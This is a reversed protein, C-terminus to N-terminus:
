DQTKQDGIDGPLCWFMRLMLYWVFNETIGGDEPVLWMKFRRYEWSPRWQGVLQYFCQRWCVKKKLGSHKSVWLSQEALTWPARTTKGGRPPATPPPPVVKSSVTNTSFNASVRHPKGLQAETQEGPFCSCFCGGLMPVRPSCFSIRYIFFM